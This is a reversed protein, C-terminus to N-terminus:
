LRPPLLFSLPPPSGPGLDFLPLAKPHQEFSGDGCHAPRPLSLSLTRLAPRHRRHTFLFCVPSPSLSLSLTFAHVDLPESPTCSYFCFPSITRIASLPLQCVPALMFGAFPETNHLMGGGRERRRCPQAVAVFSSPLPPLLQM